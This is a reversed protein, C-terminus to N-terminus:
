FFQLILHCDIEISFSTLDGPTKSVDHIQRNFTQMLLRLVIPRTSATLRDIFGFTEFHFM